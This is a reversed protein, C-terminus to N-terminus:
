TCCLHTQLMDMDVQTRVDEDGDSWATCRLHIVGSTRRATTYRGISNITARMFAGQDRDQENICFLEVSPLEDLDVAEYSIACRSSGCKLRKSTALM